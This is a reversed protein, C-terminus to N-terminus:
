PWGFTKVMRRYEAGTIRGDDRFIRLVRTPVSLCPYGHFEVDGDVERTFKAEFVELGHVQRRINYRRSQPDGPNEPVSALLLEHRERLTLDNPCPTKAPYWRPPGAETTEKKHAPNPWYRVVSGDYRAFESCTGHMLILAARDQHM